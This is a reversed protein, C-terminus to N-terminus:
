KIYWVPNVPLEDVLLEYTVSAAEKGTSLASGIAAGRSVREYLEVKISGLGWLRSVFGEEDHLIDVVYGMNGRQGAFIVVGAEPAVVTAESAVAYTLGYHMVGQSVGFYYQIKGSVPSKLKLSTPMRGAPWDKEKASAGMDETVYAGNEAVYGAGGSGVLFRNTETQTYAKDGKYITESYVLTFEPSGLSRIFRSGRPLAATTTMTNEPTRTEVRCSVTTRTVPLLSPNQVLRAYAEGQELLEGTGSPVGLSLTQEFTTKLLREGEELPQNAWYALYEQLLATAAERSELTFLYKGNVLLDVAGEPLEQKISIEFPTPSPTVSLVQSKIEGMPTATPTIRPANQGTQWGGQPAFFVTLLATLVALVLVVGLCYALTRKKEEQEPVYGPEKKMDETYWSEQFNM